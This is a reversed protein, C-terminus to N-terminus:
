QNYPILCRKHGVSLVFSMFYQKTILFSLALVKLRLKIVYEPQIKDILGKEHPFHWYYCFQCFQPKVATKRCVTTQKRCRPAVFVFLSVLGTEKVTCKHEGFRFAISRYEGCSGLEYPAMALRTELPVPAHSQRM